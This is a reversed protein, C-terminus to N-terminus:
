KVYRWKLKENNYKGASESKGKCCRTLASPDIKYKKAGDSADVFSEITGLSDTFCEVTYKPIYIESKYRFTVKTNAIRLYNTKGKCIKTITSGDKNYKIAAEKISEFTELLKGTNFDYMNISVRLDQHARANAMFESLNPMNLKAEREKQKIEESPIRAGEGGGSNCNYGAKFSNYKEVYLVELRQIEKKIQNRDTGIVKDLEKIFFHEKGYKRIARYLHTDYRRKEKFAMQLHQKFRTSIKQLTEGIYVKDNVDNYIMYVYGTYLTEEM